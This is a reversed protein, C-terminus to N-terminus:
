WRRAFGVGIFRESSTESGIGRGVRLDLQFRDNLLYTVGGDVDNGSIGAGSGAVRGSSLAEAFVSVRPNVAWWSAMSVWARQAWGAENSLVGYGLNSYLSFPTPTTWNAALKAEFQPRGTTFASTGTPLTTAQLLAIDPVISHVSDPIERLNLKAGAKLDEMGRATPADGGSRIGYSNGFLRLESRAGLGFRALTEGVSVYESRADAPGTRDDTVGAEVQVAHAPLAVPTDTYGPRDAVVPGPAGVAACGSLGAVACAM